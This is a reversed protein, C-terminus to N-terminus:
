TAPVRGKNCAKLILQEDYSKVFMEILTLREITAWINSIFSDFPYFCQSLAGCELFKMQIKRLLYPPNIEKVKILHSFTVSMPSIEAALRRPLCLANLTIPM